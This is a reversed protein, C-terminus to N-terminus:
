EIDGKENKRRIMENKDFELRCKACFEKNNESNGDNM